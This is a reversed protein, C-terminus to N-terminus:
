TAILTDLESWKLDHYLSSFLSADVVITTVQVSVEKLRFREEAWLWTVSLPMEMM